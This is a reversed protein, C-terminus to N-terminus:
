FSTRSLLTTTSDILLSRYSRQDTTFPTFLLQVFISRGETPFRGASGSFYTLTVYRIFDEEPRVIAEDSNDSPCSRGPFYVDPRSNRRGM